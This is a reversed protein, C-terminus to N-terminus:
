ADGARLIERLSLRKGFRLMGRRMVSAALRMAGAATVAVLLLSLVTQWVPIVAIPLRLLMTIPATLPFLSLAVALLSNPQAVIVIVLMYPIVVILSIPGAFQQGEQPTTVAAGITAYLAAVMLYGLLFFIATLLLMSGPIHLNDLLRRIPALVALAAVGWAIWALMQTLGVASLGTIKGAMMQTPSLTTALIEIIRDEKEDALAQLLYGSTTFTTVLFLLALLYPLLFLLYNNADIARDTGVTRLQLALPRNLADQTTAPLTRILTQRLIAQVEGAARDSLARPAIVAVNGSTLYGAPVILIASIRHTALAVRAAAEDAFRVLPIAVPHGDVQVLDATAFRAAQDVFGLRTEASSTRLVLFLVTGGLMLLLPVGVATWIFGKRRVHRRYEQWAILGIERM